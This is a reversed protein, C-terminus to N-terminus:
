PLQRWSRARPSPTATPKVTHMDGPSRPALLTTAAVEAPQAFRTGTVALCATARPKSAPSWACRLREIRQGMPPRSSLLAVRAPALVLDRRHRGGRGPDAGDDGQRRPGRPGGRPRQAGAEESTMAQLLGTSVALSPRAPWMSRIAGDGDGDVTHASRKRTARLLIGTTATGNGSAEVSAMASRSWPSHVPGGRATARPSCDQPATLSAARPWGDM